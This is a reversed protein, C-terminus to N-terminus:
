QAPGHSAREYATALVAQTSAMVDSLAEDLPRMRYTESIIEVGWPLTWGSEILAAALEVVPFDGQGPLLRRLVTDDYPDGVPAATGDDLEVSFVRDVPVARVDRPDAGSRQLHWMDLCLGAAPHDAAAVIALVEALTSINTFPMFELSIRTGHDAARRALRALSEAWADTPRPTLDDISGCAKIDQAGLAEAADLLFATGTDDPREQWWETILELQVATMGHDDLLLRLDTLTADRLYPRLDHDLIGFGTFGARAAAAIRAPLPIPSAHRGPLPVADGATTWCTALLPAASV